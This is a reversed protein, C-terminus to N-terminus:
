TKDCFRAQHVTTWKLGQLGSSIHIGWFVQQKKSKLIKKDLENTYKTVNPLIIPFKSLSSEVSDCM